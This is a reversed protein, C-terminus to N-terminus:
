PTELGALRREVPAVFMANLSKDTRDMGPHKLIVLLDKLAAVDSCEKIMDLADCWDRAMVVYIALAASGDSM